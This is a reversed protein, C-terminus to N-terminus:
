SAGHSRDERTSLGPARWRGRSKCYATTHTMKGYRHHMLGCLGLDAEARVTAASTYTHGQGFRPRQKVQPEGDVTLRYLAPPAEPM